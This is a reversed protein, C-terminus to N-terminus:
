TVRPLRATVHAALEHQPFSRGSKAILKISGDAELRISYEGCCDELHRKTAALGAAYGLERFFAMSRTSCTPSFLCHRGTWRSLFIKYGRIAVVALLGLLRDITSLVNGSNGM